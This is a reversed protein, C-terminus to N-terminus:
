SEWHLGQWCELSLPIQLTHAYRFVYQLFSAHVNRARYERIEECSRMEYSLSYAFEMQGSTLGM